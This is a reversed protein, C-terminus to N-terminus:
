VSWDKLTGAIDYDKYVESRGPLKHFEKEMGSVPLKFPQDFPLWGSEWFLYDQIHIGYNCLRKQIDKLDAGFFTYVLTREKHQPNSLHQYSEEILIFEEAHREPGYTKILRFYKREIDYASADKELGLIWYFQSARKVFAIYEEAAVQELITGKDRNKLAELFNNVESVWIEYTEMNEGNAIKKRWAEILQKWLKEAEGLEGVVTRTLAINHVLQIDHPNIRYAHEWKALAERLRGRKAEQYGEEKLCETLFSSLHPIPRETNQMKQFADRARDPHVESLLYYGLRSYVQTQVDASGIMEPPFDLIRYWFSVGKAADGKMMHALGLFYLYHPDDPAGNLLQLMVEIAAGYRRLKLLFSPLVWKPFNTQVFSTLFGDGIEFDQPLDLSLVSFAVARLAKERYESKAKERILGLFYPICSVNGADFMALAAYYTPRETKGYDTRLVEDFHRISLPINGIHHCALALFFRAEALRYNVDLALSFFKIARDYREEAFARIGARYAAEVTFRWLAKNFHDNKLAAAALEAGRGWEDNQFWQIARLFDVVALGRGARAEGAQIAEKFYDRARSLEGDKLLLVGLQTLAYGAIDPQSSVSLYLDRAHKPDGERLALDALRAVAFHESRAGKAAKKLLGEAKKYDGLLLHAVGLWYDLGARAKKLAELEKLGKECSGNLIHAKGLLYHAQDPMKPKHLPAICELAEAFRGTHIAFEAAGLRIEPAVSELVSLKLPIADIVLPFLLNTEPVSTAVEQALLCEVVQPDRGGDRYYRRLQERSFPDDPSQLLVPVIAARIAADQPHTTLYARFAAIAFSDSRRERLYRQALTMWEEARPDELKGQEHLYQLVEDAFPVVEGKRIYRNLVEQAARLKVGGNEANTFMDELVTELLTAPADQKKLLYDMLIESVAQHRVGLRYAEQYITVAEPSRDNKQGLMVAVKKLGKAPVTAGLAVARKVIEVALDNFLDANIFVEGVAVLWSKDKPNKQFYRLYIKQADRTLSRLAPLNIAAFELVEADDYRSAARESMEITSRSKQGLRLAGKVLAYEVIEDTVGHNYANWLLDYRDKPVSKMPVMSQAILRVPEGLGPNDKLAQAYIKFAESDTYGEIAMLRALREIEERNLASLFYLRRLMELEKKLQGTGRYFNLLTRVGKLWLKDVEVAKEIVGIAEPTQNGADILCDGLSTLVAIDDPFVKLARRYVEMAIPSCEGSRAYQKALQHLAHTNEPEYGLWNAYFELTRAEDGIRLVIAELRQLSEEMLSASGSEQALRVAEWLLDQAKESQGERHAKAAAGLLRKTRAQVVLGRM